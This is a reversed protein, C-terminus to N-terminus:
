CAEQAGHRRDGKEKTCTRVRESWSRGSSRKCVRVCECVQDNFVDFLGDCALLLFDGACATEAEPPLEITTIEPEAVVLPRSLDSSETGGIWSETEDGLIESIGKKFEADGFARSVALEGMVRGHIIFGGAAKIRTAEDERGPKHDVSLARAVGRTCLVTRSDGVNAAFVHRGCIMVTTATSGAQPYESTAIFQEDTCLFAGKIAAHLLRQVPESSAGRPEAGCAAAVEDAARSLAQMVNQHLRESLYQSAQAGGHGDYVAVYSQPGLGAATLASIEFDQVVISKDEMTRRMGCEESVGFDFRNVSFGTRAVLIQDSIALCYPGEYPGCLQM